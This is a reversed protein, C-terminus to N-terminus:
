RRRLGKKQKWPWFIERRLETVMLIPDDKIAAPGDVL